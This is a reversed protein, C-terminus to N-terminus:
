RKRWDMRSWWLLLGLVIAAFIGLALFKAVERSEFSAAVGLLGAVVVLLAIGPRVLEEYSKRTVLRYFLPMSFALFAILLLFGIADSM